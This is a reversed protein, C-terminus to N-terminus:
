GKFKKLKNITVIPRSRDEFDKDQWQSNSSFPKLTEYRRFKIGKGLVKPLPKTKSFNGYLGYLLQSSLNNLIEKDYYKLISGSHELLPRFVKRISTKKFEDLRTKRHGYKKFLM